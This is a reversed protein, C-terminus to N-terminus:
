GLRQLRQLTCQPRPHRCRSDGYRGRITVSWLCRCDQCSMAPAKNLDSCHHTLVGNTTLVKKLLAPTICTPASQAVGRFVGVVSSFVYRLVWQVVRWPCINESQIHMLDTIATSCLKMKKRVYIFLEWHCSKVFDKYYELFRPCQTQFVKKFHVNNISYTDCVFSTDCM